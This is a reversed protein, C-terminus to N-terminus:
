EKNPDFLIRLVADRLNYMDTPIQEGASVGLSDIADHFVNRIDNETVDQLTIKVEKKM